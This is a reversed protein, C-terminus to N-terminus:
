SVNLVDKKKDRNFKLCNLKPPHLSESRLNAAFKVWYQMRLMFGDINPLRPPKQATIVEKTDRNFKLCKVM